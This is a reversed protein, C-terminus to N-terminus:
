EVYLVNICVEADYNNLVFSVGSPVWGKRQAKKHFIKKRINQPIYFKAKKNARVVGVDGLERYQSNTNGYKLRFLEVEINHYNKNVIEFGFPTIGKLSFSIGKPVSVKQCGIEKSKLYGDQAFISLSFIFAFLFVKM